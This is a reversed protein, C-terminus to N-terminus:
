AAVPKMERPTWGTLRLRQWECYSRYHRAKEKHDFARLERLLYIAEAETYTRYVGLQRLPLRGDKLGAVAGEAEPVLIVPTGWRDTTTGTVPLEYSATTGLRRYTVTLPRDGLLHATAEEENIEAMRVAQKLSSQAIACDTEFPLQRSGHCTGSFHQWRVEYGHLAMLGRPAKQVHGCIQCTGYHTAKRTAKQM